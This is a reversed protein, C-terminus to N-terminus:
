PAPSYTAAPDALALSAFCVDERISQEVPELGGAAQRVLRVPRTGTKRNRTVENSSVVRVRSPAARYSTLSM